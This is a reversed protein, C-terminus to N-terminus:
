KLDSASSVSDNSFDTSKATAVRSEGAESGSKASEEVQPQPNSFSLSDALQIDAGAFQELHDAEMTFTALIRRGSEDSFHQVIWAIPVGQVEGRAGVRLVRLGAESVRNEAEVFEILQEGLTQKVDKQFSELTWQEGEKLAVLSRFDCQAISRDRDTMRMMASGPVDTMMRWRRDMLVSVGLRQSQLNVYLQDAPAPQDLAIKTPVPPLAIPAELPKRLMRLKASVDFGPEAKGPERTEHLGMALWTCSNLKRDFTLKGICRILTPVGEVDGRINGRFELKAEVSDISTVDFMLDTSETASLNFVSTIADESPSYKSGVSVPKQPLLQDIAVSSAPMRLLDLEDRVFLDETAYILEPTTERRVVCHQVSERLRAKQEERNLFRKSEATHYYREACTIMRKDDVALGLPREEYDFDANSELPLQIAAKNSVLPNKPVNVNGNVELKTRVRYLNHTTPNLAVESKAEDANVLSSNGIVASTM